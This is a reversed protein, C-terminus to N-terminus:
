GNSSHKYTAAIGLGVLSGGAAFITCFAMVVLGMIVLPSPRALFLFGLYVAQGLFIGIPALWFRDSDVLAALIGALFLSPIYFGWSDWPELGGTALPSLVWVGAGLIM